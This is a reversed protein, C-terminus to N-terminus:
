DECKLIRNLKKERLRYSMFEKVWKNNLEEIENEICYAVLYPTIVVEIDGYFSDSTVDWTQNTGPEHEPDYVRFHTGYYHNKVKWYYLKDKVVIKRWGKLNVAM